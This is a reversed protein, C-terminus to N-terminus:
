WQIFCAEGPKNQLAEEWNRSTLLASREGLFHFTTSFSRLHSPVEEDTLVDGTGWTKSQGQDRQLLLQEREMISEFVSAQLLSDGLGDRRPFERMLAIARRRLSQPSGGHALMSLPGLVLPKPQSAVGHAGSGRLIDEAIQIVAAFQRQREQEELAPNLGASDQHFLFPIVVLNLQLALLALSLSERMQDCRLPKAEEFHRFVKRLERLTNRFPRESVALLELAEPDNGMKLRQTLHVNQQWHYILANILSESAQNARVLHSSCLQHLAEASESEVPWKPAQYYRWSNFAESAGLIGSSHMLGGNDM